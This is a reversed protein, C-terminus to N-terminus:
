SDELSTTMEKTLEAAENLPTIATNLQRKVETYVSTMQGVRTIKANIVADTARDITVRVTTLKRRVESAGQEIAGNKGGASRVTEELLARTRLELGQVQGILILSLSEYALDRIANAEREIRQSEANVEFVSSVRAVNSQHTVLFAQTAELKGIQANRLADDLELQGHLTVKLLELHTRLVEARLRLVDRSKAIAENQAAITGFKEYAEKATTYIQHADTYNAYQFLYDQSAREQTTPQPSGTQQAQAPTFLLATVVLVAPIITRRM